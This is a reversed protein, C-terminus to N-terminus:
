EFILGKEATFRAIAARGEYGVNPRKNNQGILFRQNGLGVIGLSADFEWRDTLQLRPNARLLVKPTGYCGFWWAGEAFAVTQIGMLTYGSALVHRKRFAFKEDYEYLY